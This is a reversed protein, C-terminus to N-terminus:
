ADRLSGFLFSVGKRFGIFAVAIPIVVPLLDFVTDLVPTIDIPSEGTFLGAIDYSPVTM